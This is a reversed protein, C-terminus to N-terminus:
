TSRPHRVIVAIPGEFLTSELLRTASLVCWRATPRAERLLPFPIHQALGHQFMGLATAQRWAPGGSPRPAVVEAFRCSGLPHVVVAERWALTAPVLPHEGCRM